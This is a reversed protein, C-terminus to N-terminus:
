HFIRLIGACPRVCALITATRRAIGNHRYTSKLQHIQHEKTSAYKGKDALTDENRSHRFVSRCGFGSKEDAVLEYRYTVMGEKKGKM